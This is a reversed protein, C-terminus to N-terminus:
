GRFDPMLRANKAVNEAAILLARAAQPSLIM